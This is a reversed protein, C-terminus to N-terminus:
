NARKDGRTDAGFKAAGMRGDPMVQQVVTFGHGENLAISIYAKQQDLQRKMDALVVDTPRTM